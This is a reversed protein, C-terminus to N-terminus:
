TYTLTILLIDSTILYSLMDHNKGPLNDRYMNELTLWPSTDKQRYQIYMTRPVEPPPYTYTIDVYLTNVGNQDMINTTLVPAEPKESVLLQRSKVMTIRFNYLGGSLVCYM